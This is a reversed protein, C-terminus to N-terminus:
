GLLAKLRDPMELWARRGQETQLLEQRSIFSLGISNTITSSARPQNAAEELFCFIAKVLTTDRKNLGEQVARALVAMQMHIQNEADRLETLSPFRAIVDRSFSVNDYMQLLVGKQEPLEKDM